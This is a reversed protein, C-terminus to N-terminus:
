DMVEIVSPAAIPMNPGNYAELWGRVRIRRGELSELDMDAARFNRMDEPSVTVTFDTQRDEGFNLFYRGRYDGVSLVTGEVIQFTGAFGEEDEELRAPTTVTFRGTGWHGAGRERAVAEAALLAEACRATSLDPAARALGERLLQGQLWAGDAFVQALLRGYRDQEAGTFALTVVRNEILGFLADKNVAFSHEGETDQAPALIGALLVVEGAETFFANGSAAAGFQVERVGAFPCVDPSESGDAVAPAFLLFGAAALVAAPKNLTLRYQPM